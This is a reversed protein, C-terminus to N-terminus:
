VQTDVITLLTCMEFSFSLSICHLQINRHNCHTWCIQSACSCKVVFIMQMWNLWFCLASLASGTLATM